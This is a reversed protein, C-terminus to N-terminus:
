ITKKLLIDPVYRHTEGVDVIREVLLWHADGGERERERPRMKATPVTTSVSTTQEERGKL